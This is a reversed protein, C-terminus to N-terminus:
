EFDRRGGFGAFSQREFTAVHHLELEKGRAKTGGEPVRAFASAKWGLQTYNCVERRRVYLGTRYARIPSAYFLGM